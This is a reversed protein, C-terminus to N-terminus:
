ESGGDNREYRLHGAEPVAERDPIVEVLIENRRMFWPTWPPDYRALVPVGTVAIGREGLWSLLRETHDQFREESWGGSFRVVAMNREPVERIVVAPDTLEPLTERSYQSPMNFTM